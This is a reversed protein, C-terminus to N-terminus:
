KFGFRLFVQLAAFAIGIVSIWVVSRTELRAVRRELAITDDAFQSRLHNLIDLRREMEISLKEQAKDNGDLRVLISDIKSGFLKECHESQWKMCSLKEDM